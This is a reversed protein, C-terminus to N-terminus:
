PVFFGVFDATYGEFGGIPIVFGCTVLERNHGVGRSHDYSVAEVVTGDPATVFSAHFVFASPSAGPV